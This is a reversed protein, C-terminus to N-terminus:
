TVLSKCINLIFEESNENGDEDGFAERPRRRFGVSSDMLALRALVNELMIVTAM